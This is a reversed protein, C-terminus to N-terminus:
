IAELFIGFYVNYWCYLMFLGSKSM